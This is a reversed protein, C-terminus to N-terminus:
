AAAAILGRFEMVSMHDAKKGKATVDLFWVQLIGSGKVRAARTIKVQRRHGAQEIDVVQGPKLKAGEPTPAAQKATLAVSKATALKVMFRELRAQLDKALDEDGRSQALKIRHQIAAKSSHPSQRVCDALPVSHFAWTKFERLLVVGDEIAEVM